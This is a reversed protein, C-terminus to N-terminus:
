WGAAAPHCALAGDEQEPEECDSRIVAINQEIEDYRFDASLAMCMAEVKVSLEDLRQADTDLGLMRRLLDRVLM